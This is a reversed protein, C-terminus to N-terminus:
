EKQKVQRTFSNVKPSQRENKWQRITLKQKKRKMLCYENKFLHSILFCSQMEVLSTTKIMMENFKPKNNENLPFIVLNPFYTEHRFWTWFIVWLFTIILSYLSNYGAPHPHAQFNLCVPLAYVFYFYLMLTYCQGSFVSFVASM